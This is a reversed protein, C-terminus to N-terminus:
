KAVSVELFTNSPSVYEELKGQNMKVVKDAVDFYHDDHTIAIVIKGKRKMEPLLTRYFFKRYEPDQDAAWEDFLYIPSDELYCLLLALRKRQGGSLNITSFTGNDLVSVKDKIDLTELYKKISSAKSSIDINYLKDFLYFPNFVASYKEGLQSAPTEKGDIYIKGGDPEYLGTLLKGLTTKGSGNGGIIFLIEGSNVELNIPGVGFSHERENQYTFTIDEVRLTQVTNRSQPEAVLDIETNSPIENLFQQARNWAIKLRMIAPVSQLIANVPGILYLLIIIFMTIAYLEIDPFLIPFGFAATALITILVAEGILSAKVYRFSATSIKMRYEDASKAVDEKYLIKKNLHLSIEKFGDIMGNLLRMFVNRSDRAEEFYHNTSRSVFYYITCLTTILMVTLVTAWFAMTALYLMAAMATFLNTVLMIFMNTSEGITGVDDNLATYIRGRDIKEFKQYSTKFIKDILKIRLDYILDRTLTILKIQVFRRGALYVVLAIMFYFILFKMEIHTNIASTILLILVMNAIGSLASVLLLKPLAGRHKNRDPFFLTIFYSVYSLGLSGLTMLVMIYFSAPTWVLAPEWTFGAMAKPIKYLGYLFPVLLVLYLISEQIKARTLSEFVREGKVIGFMVYGIFALVILIYIVIIISVTTYARDNGDDPMIDNVVEHGSLMRLLNFGIIETYASNSNALVVVGYKENANFGAFATFNPNRGGHFLLNDGNLSTFWGSAYSTNDNPPVTEDRHHTEEIAMKLSSSDVGIQHSLWKAMDVANSIVYGAANNGRYSPADYPRPKFFGIKYGKSMLSSDVPVGVTTYTLALPDLVAKQLYAEFSLGTVKEVVLALVDYNITAYEFQDGPLKHLEVDVLARVTRELAKDDQGAPIKAITNWPIGSAHNLLQKITINVPNKKYYVRFWPIYDKVNTNMGISGEEVLKAVVLATFAKSCSGLQFLTRENVEEHREPDAYGFHHTTSKGDVIVVVSMGPIDAKNYIRNIYAVLDERIPDRQAYGILSNLILFSTAIIRLTAKMPRKQNLISYRELILEPAFAGCNLKVHNNSSFPPFFLRLNIKKIPLHGTNKCYLGIKM